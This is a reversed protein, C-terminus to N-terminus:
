QPQAPEGRLRRSLEERGIQGAAFARTAADILLARQGVIRKNRPASERKIRDRRDADYAARKETHQPEIIRRIRDGLRGEELRVKAGFERAIAAWSFGRARMERASDYQGNM